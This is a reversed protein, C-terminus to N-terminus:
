PPIMEQRYIHIKSPFPFHVGRLPARDISSSLLCSGRLPHTTPSLYKMRNETGFPSLALNSLSLNLSYQPSSKGEGPSTKWKILIPLLNWRSASFQIILSSDSYPLFREDTRLLYQRFVRLLRIKTLIGGSRIWSSSLSDLLFTHKSHSVLILVFPFFGM